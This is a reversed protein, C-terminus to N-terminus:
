FEKKLMEVVEDMALGQRGAEAALEAVLHHVRAAQSSGERVIAGRGRRLEIVGEERLDNYARLVTHMNVDLSQALDRAAPLRDGSEVDGDAVARRVAAAIQVYLPLGSDPNLKLLM